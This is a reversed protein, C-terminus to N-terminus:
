RASKLISEIDGLHLRMDYELIDPINGRNTLVIVLEDAAEPWHGAKVDYQDEFLSTDSPM